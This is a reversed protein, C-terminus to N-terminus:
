TNPVVLVPIKSSRIVRRVTSGMAATAFRKSASRGMVILDAGHKDAVRLIEESVQGSAVLIERVLAPEMGCAGLEEQCFIELRQKMKELIEQMGGKKLNEAKEASLYMDLVMTGTPGLPEVVHLMLIRAGHKRAEVVAQRFVPRTHDGLDTLYLITRVEPFTSM